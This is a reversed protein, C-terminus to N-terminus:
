QELRLGRGKDDDGSLKAVKEWLVCECGEYRVRIYKRIQRSLM